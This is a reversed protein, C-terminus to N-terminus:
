LAVDHVRVVRSATKLRARRTRHDPLRYASLGPLERSEIVNCQREYPVVDHAIAAVACV